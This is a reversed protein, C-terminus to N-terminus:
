INTAEQEIIRLQWYWASQGDHYQYSTTARLNARALQLTREKIGELAASRILDGAHHPEGDALQERLWTEAKMSASRSRAM